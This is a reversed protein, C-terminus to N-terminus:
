QFIQRHFSGSFNNNKHLIAHIMRECSFSRFFNVKKQPFILKRSSAGLLPEYQLLPHRRGRTASCSRVRSFPKESIPAALCFNLYDFPRGRETEVGTELEHTSHYVHLTSFCRASGFSLLVTSTHTQAEPPIQSFGYERELFKM